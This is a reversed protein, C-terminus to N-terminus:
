WGWTTYGDMYGDWYAKDKADNRKDLERWNYVTGNINMNGDKDTHECVYKGYWVLFRFPMSLLILCYAGALILAVPTLVTYIMKLVNVSSTDYTAFLGIRGWLRIFVFGGIMVWFKFKHVKKKREEEDEINKYRHCALRGAPYSIFLWIGYLVKKPIFLLLSLTSMNEINNDNNKMSDPLLPGCFQGNVERRRAIKNLIGSDKYYNYNMRKESEVTEAGIEIQSACFVLLARANFHM